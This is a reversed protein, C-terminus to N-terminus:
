LFAPDWVTISLNGATDNRAGMASGGPTGVITMGGANSGFNGKVVPLLAVGIQGIGITAGPSVYYNGITYAWDVKSAGVASNAIKGNTVASNGLSGTNIGGGIIHGDDILPGPVCTADPSWAGANGSLDVFRASYYVDVGYHLNGSDILRAANEGAMTVYAGTPTTKRRWEVRAHHPYTPVTVTVELAPGPIQALAPTSPTPPAGAYNATTVTLTVAAGDLDFANTAFFVLKYSTNPLLDAIAVEYNGANLQLQLRPTQGNTANNIAVVWLRSWNVAPPVARVLLTTFAKGTGDIASTNSVVTPSTPVAPPTQSYDIAYAAGVTDPLAVATYNYIAANYARATFDNRDVKRGVPRVIMDRSGGLTPSAITILDGFDHQVANQVVDIEELSGYLKALYDVLRYISEPERLLPNTYTKPGASGGISREATVRYDRDEGGAPQANLVIKEPRALTRVRDVQLLGARETYNAVSAAPADQWITWFGTATKRLEARLVMLIWYVIDRLNFERTYSCDVWMKAANSYGQIAALAAADYAIGAQTLIYALEVNAIRATGTANQVLVDYALPYDENSSDRQERDFDLADCTYGSVAANATVQTYGGAVVCGKRYVAQITYTHGARKMLGVYRYKGAVMGVFSLEAKIVYGVGDQLIRGLHKDAINPWDEKTLKLRPYAGKLRDRDADEFDLTLADPTRTASKVVATRVNTLTRTTGNTLTLESLQSFEFRGGIALAKIVELSQATYADVAGSIRVVDADALRRMYRKIPGITGIWNFGGGSGLANVGNNGFDGDYTGAAGPQGDRFVTLRDGSWATAGRVRGVPTGIAPGNTQTSGDYAGAGIGSAFLPTGAAAVAGIIRDYAVAPWYRARYEAYITGEANPVWSDPITLLSRPRTGTNPAAWYYARAAKVLLPALAVCSGTTGPTAATLTTGASPRLYATFSTNGSANNNMAFRVMWWDEFEDGDVEMTAGGAVSWMNFQGTSTDLNGQATITTGGAYQLQFGVARTTVPITDKKIPWLLAHTLGDNAVTLSKRRDGLNGFIDVVTSATLTGDPAMANQTAGAGGGNTWAPLDDPVLQTEANNALYPEMTAATFAERAEAINGAGSTNITWTEGTAMVATAAGAAFRTADWDITKTGGADLFGNYEVIRQVKGRYAESDATGYCGIKRGSGIAIPSVGATVVEAGFQIWALTAPDADMPGFAYFFKTRRNGAGDNVQHRVRTWQFVNVFANPTVTTSSINSAGDYLTIGSTSCRIVFGSAAGTLANYIAAHASDATMAFLMCIDKDGTNNLAATALTTCSNGTRGPLYLWGTRQGVGDVDTIVGAADVMNVNPSRMWRVGDVGFGHYPWSTVEGVSVYEPAVRNSEGSVDILLVETIIVNGDIYDFRPTPAATNGDLVAHIQFRQDAGTLNFTKQNGQAIGNRDIRAQVQTTAGVARAKFALLCAQNARGPLRTSNHYIAGGAGWTVLGTVPDVVVAGKIWSADALNKSSTVGNFVRRLGRYPVFENALGWVMKREWDPVPITAARTFATPSEGIEAPLQFGSWYGDQVIADPPLDAAKIEAQFAGGLGQLGFEDSGEDSPEPFAGLRGAYDVGGYRRTNTAVAITSSPLPGRLFADGRRPDVIQSVADALSQTM